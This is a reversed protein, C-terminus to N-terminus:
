RPIVGRKLAMRVKVTKLCLAGIGELFGCVTSSSDFLLGRKDSTVGHAGDSTALVPSRLLGTGDNDEGDHEDNSNAQNTQPDALANLLALGVLRELNLGAPEWDFSVLHPRPSSLKM